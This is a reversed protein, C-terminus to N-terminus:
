GAASDPGGSAVCADDLVESACRYEGGCDLCRWLTVSADETEAAVLRHKRLDLAQGSSSM